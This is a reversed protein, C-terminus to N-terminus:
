NEPSQSAKDINSKVTAVWAILAPISDKDIISKYEMLVLTQSANPSPVVVEVEMSLQQSEPNYKFAWQGPNKDTDASVTPPASQTGSKDTKHRTKPLFFAGIANTLGTSKAPKASEDSSPASM